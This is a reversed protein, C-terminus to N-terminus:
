WLHIHATNHRNGDRFDNGSIDNGADRNWKGKSQFLMTYARMFTSQSFDVKLVSGNVPITDVYLCVSEIGCNDFSFPNSKNDGCLSKSLVFEIVVRYTSGSVPKGLSIDVM